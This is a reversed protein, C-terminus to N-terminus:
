CLGSHESDRVDLDGSNRASPHLTKKKFWFMGCAYENELVQSVDIKEVFRGEDTVASFEILELGDFYNLIVAPSHVRHANFYLAPKGVPLAFYLDGDPALVRALELASKQTGLPDLPDGYRGLGVHEAAHLCSLSRVSRDALPLELMNGAVSSLGSLRVKLPRYDLFIVPLCASLLAPFIVQSAIDVHRAPRATLIRRMAWSNLYFYHIDFPTDATRDHLQPFSNRLSMPEAGPLRRYARWDGFYWRFGALGRAARRPDIVEM